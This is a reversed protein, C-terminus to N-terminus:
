CGGLAEVIERDSETGLFALGYDSPRMDFSRSRSLIETEVIQTYLHKVDTPATAITKWILFISERIGEDPGTRDIRGLAEPVGLAETRWQARTIQPLRKSRGAEGADNIAIMSAARLHNTPPKGGSRLQWRGFSHFSAAGNWDCGAINM